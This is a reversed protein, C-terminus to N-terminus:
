GESQKLSELKKMHKIQNERYEEQGMLWKMMNRIHPPTLIIEYTHTPDDSKEFQIENNSLLTIKLDSHVQTLQHLTLTTLSSGDSSTFQIQTNSSDLISAKPNEKKYKKIEMKM